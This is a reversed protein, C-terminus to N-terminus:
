RENQVKKFYEFKERNWGGNGMEKDTLHKSIHIATNFELCILCVNKKIYGISPNIREISCIWNNEFYSGFCLPINSYACKGKQKNFLNVIFDYNIDMIMNKDRKQLRKLSKKANNLLTKIHGIPTSNYKKISLGACKKCEIKNKQYFDYEPKLQKCFNCVFYIKDEIIQKTAHQCKNKKITPYFDYNIICDNKGSLKLSDNIKEKTWQCKGNFELCCLVVNNIIYGKEMNLREISCQWTSFQATIMPISSYYCLGNQEKWINTIDNFTLSFESADDKRHKSNSKASVILYQLFQKNSEIRKKVKPKAIENNNYLNIIRKFNEPIEEQKVDEYELLNNTKRCGKFLILIFKDYIKAATIIDKSSGLQYKLFRAYYRGDKKRCYIGIYKTNIEM